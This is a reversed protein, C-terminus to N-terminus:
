KQSIVKEVTIKENCGLKEIFCSEMLTEPTITATINDFECYSYCTGDFENLYTCNKDATNWMICKKDFYYGDDPKPKNFNVMFIMIFILLVVVIDVWRFSKWEGM